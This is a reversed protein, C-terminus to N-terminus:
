ADIREGRPFGDSALNRTHQELRRAPAGLAEHYTQALAQVVEPWRYRQAVRPAAHAARQLREPRALLTRLQDSLDDVDGCRFVFGGDEIVSTNEPIDSVLAPLGCSLSELLALSMGEIESPLVFLCANYYLEALVDPGVAGTFVVHPGAMARLRKEYDANLDSPGAIVLRLGPCPVARRLNEFAEILYHQGKEPVLRAVCLLFQGPSLGWRAMAGVQSPVIQRVGNPIFVTQRGYRRLFYEQLPKSVVVLQCASRVAVQEGLKLYAKALRGWKARQWDLGHVTVVVRRGALSPVFSLSAPGLAHYHIVDTGRSLADITCLATHSIADLHKTGASWHFIQRVGPHDWAQATAQDAGQALYSRRCYVDVQHGGAALLRSLIEVHQEVGGSHAPIGKQGIM